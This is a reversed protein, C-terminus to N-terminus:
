RIGVEAAEDASGPNGRNPESQSPTRLLITEGRSIRHKSGSKVPSCPDTETERWNKGGKKAERTSKAERVLIIPVSERGRKWKGNDDGIGRNGRNGRPIGWLIGGNGWNNGVRWVRNGRNGWNGWNWGAFRVARAVVAADARGPNEGRILAEAVVAFDVSKGRFGAGEALDDVAVARAAEGRIQVALANAATRRHDGRRNRPTAVAAAALHSERPVPVYVTSQM